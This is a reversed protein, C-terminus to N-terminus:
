DQVEDETEKHIGARSLLGKLMNRVILLDTEVLETKTLKASHRKIDSTLQIIEAVLRKRTTINMSM